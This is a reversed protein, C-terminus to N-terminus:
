LSNNDSLKIYPWPLWHLINSFSFLLLYCNKISCLNKSSHLKFIPIKTFLSRLFRWSKNLNNSHQAFCTNNLFSSLSNYFVKIFKEESSLITWWRSINYNLILVTVGVTSGVTVTLKGYFSPLINLLCSFKTFHNTLVLRESQERCIDKNRKGWLAFNRTRIWCCYAKM